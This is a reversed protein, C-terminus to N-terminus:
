TRQAGIHVSIYEVVPLSLSSYDYKPITLSLPFIHLSKKRYRETNANEYHTINESSIRGNKTQKGKTYFFYVVFGSFM